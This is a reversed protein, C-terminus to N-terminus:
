AVCSECFPQRRHAGRIPSCTPPNYFGEADVRDELVNRAANVQRVLREVARAEKSRAGCLKRTTVVGRQLELQARYLHDGLTEWSGIRELERTLGTMDRYKGREVRPPKTPPRGGRKEEVHRVTLHNRSKREIRTNVGKQISDEYSALKKLFMRCDSMFRLQPQYTLPFGYSPYPTEDTMSGDYWGDYTAAFSDFTSFQRRIESPLSPYGSPHIVSSEQWGDYARLSM